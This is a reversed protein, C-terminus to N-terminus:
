KGGNEKRYPKLKEKVEEISKAGMNRVQWFDNDSMMLLEKLTNYGARKLCNYTRVPLGLHEILMTDPSMNEMTSEKQKEIYIGTKIFDSRRPFRLRMLAKSEIQGIRGATLGCKEAVVKLTLQEKYRYCLVDKEKPPIEDLMKEIREELVDLDVNLESDSIDKEGFIACIINEPYEKSKVKYKAM